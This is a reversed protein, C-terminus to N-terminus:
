EKDEIFILKGSKDVLNRFRLVIDENGITIRSYGGRKYIIVQGMAIVEVPKQSKLFDKLIESDRIMEKSQIISKSLPSFERAWDIVEILFEGLQKETVLYQKM